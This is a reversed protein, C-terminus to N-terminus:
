LFINLVRLFIHKFSLIHLWPPTQGTICFMKKRTVVIYMARGVFFGSTSTNSVMVVFLFYLWFCVHKGFIMLYFVMLVSEYPWNPTSKETLKPPPKDFNSNNIIFIWFCFDILPSMYELSVTNQKYVHACYFVFTHTTPKHVDKQTRCGLWFSVRQDSDVKVCTMSLSIFVCYVHRTM